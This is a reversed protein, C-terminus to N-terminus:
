AASKVPKSAGGTTKRGSNESGNSPPSPKRTAGKKTVEPTAPKKTPETPSPTKQQEPPVPPFYRDRVEEIANCWEM